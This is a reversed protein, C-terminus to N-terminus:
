YTSEERVMINLQSSKYIDELFTESQTSLANVHCLIGSIPRLLEFSHM